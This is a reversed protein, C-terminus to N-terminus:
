RPVRKTSKKLDVIGVVSAQPVFGIGGASLSMRSDASNDRNDGMVSYHEHRTKFEQTNDLLTTGVDYIQVYSGEPLTERLIKANATEGETIEVKAQGAAITPVANGNINVIGAKLQIRDGPLGIVRKVLLSTADRPSTFM